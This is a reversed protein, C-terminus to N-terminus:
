CTTDILVSCLLRTFQARSYLRQGFTAKLLADSECVYENKSFLAKNDHYYKGLYLILDEFMFEMRGSDCAPVCDLVARLADSVRFVTKPTPTPRTNFPLLPMARSATSLYVSVILGSVTAAALLDMENARTVPTVVNKKFRKVIEIENYGMFPVQLIRALPESCLIICCNDPDIMRRTDVANRFAAVLGSITTMRSPSSPYSLFQQFSEPITVFHSLKKREACRFNYETTALSSAIAADRIHTEDCDAYAPTCISLFLPYLENYNASTVQLIEALEDDFLIPIVGDHKDEMCMCFRSIVGDITTFRSTMGMYEQLRQPIKFFLQPVGVVSM